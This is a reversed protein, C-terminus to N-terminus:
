ASAVSAAAFMLTRRGVDYFVASTAALMDKLNDADDADDTLVEEWAGEGLVLQLTLSGPQGADAAVWSFHYHTLHRVTISDDIVPQEVPPVPPESEAAM